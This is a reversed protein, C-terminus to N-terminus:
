IWEVILTDLHRDFAKFISVSLYRMDQRDEAFSCTYGRAILDEVDLRGCDVHVHGLGMCISLMWIGTKM